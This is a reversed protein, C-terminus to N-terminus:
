QGGAKRYFMQLYLSGGQTLANGQGWYLPSGGASQSNYAGGYSSNGQGNLWQSYEGFGSGDGGGSNCNGGKACGNFHVHGSVANGSSDYMQGLAWYPHGTNSGDTKNLTEWGNSVSNYTPSWVSVVFRKWDNNDSRRILFQDNAAPIFTNRRDYGWNGATFDSVTVPNGVNVSFSYNSGSAFNNGHNMSYLMTWGGGDYSTDMLCYHRKANGLSYAGHMDLWYVGDATIGDDLLAKASRAALNQTSGDNGQKKVTAWGITNSVYYEISNTNTNFVLEGVATGVGANRGTTTTTGLGVSTPSIFAGENPNGGVATMIGTLTAGSNNAQVKVNGGSDKISTADIGTLNAGSVAPLTAPFRADPITGSTLQTANLATLGSGNGTVNGEIPGVFKTATIVGSNVNNITLDSVSGNERFMKIDGGQATISTVGSISNPRIVTM